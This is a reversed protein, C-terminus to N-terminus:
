RHAHDLLLRRRMCQTDMVYPHWDSNSNSMHESPPNLFMVFLRHIACFPDVVTAVADQYQNLAQFIGM